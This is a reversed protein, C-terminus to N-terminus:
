GKYPHCQDQDIYGVPGKCDCPNAIDDVTVDVWCTDECNECPNNDCDNGGGTKIFNCGCGKTQDMDMVPLAEFELRDQAKELTLVEGATLNLSEIVSKTNM